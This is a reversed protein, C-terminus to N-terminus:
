AKRVMDIIQDLELKVLSREVNIHHHQTIGLMDSFGKDYSCDIPLVHYMDQLEGNIMANMHGCGVILVASQKVAKVDIFWSAERVPIGFVDLPIEYYPYPSIKNNYHLQGELDKVQMGLEKDAFSILRLIEDVLPNAGWIKHHINITEVLLHNISLDHAIMLNIVHLLFSGKSGHVESLVILLPKNRKEAELMATKILPTIRQRINKISDIDLLPQFLQQYDKKVANYSEDDIEKQNYLNEIFSPIEDYPIRSFTGNINLAYLVPISFKLTIFSDIKNKNASTNLYRFATGTDPEVFNFGDYIFAHCHMQREYFDWEEPKHSQTEHPQIDYRGTINLRIRSNHTKNVFEESCLDTIEITQAAILLRKLENVENDNKSEFLPAFDRSIKLRNTLTEEIQNWYDKVLVKDKAYPEDRTKLFNLTVNEVLFLLIMLKKINQSLALQAIESKTLYRSQNSGDEIGHIFDDVLSIVAQDYKAAVALQKIRELDKVALQFM